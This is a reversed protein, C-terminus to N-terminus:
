RQPMIFKNLPGRYSAVEPARKKYEYVLDVASAKEGLNDKFYSVVDMSLHDLEPVPSLIILQPKPINEAPSVPLALVSIDDKRLLTPDPFQPRLDDHIFNKIWVFNRNPTVIGSIYGDGALFHATWQESRSEPVILQSFATQNTGDILLTHEVVPPSVYLPRHEISM